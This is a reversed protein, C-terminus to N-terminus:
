SDQKGTQKNMHYQKIKDILLEEARKFRLFTQTGCNDCILYVKDKKTFKIPIPSNCLWCAIERCNGDRLQLGNTVGMM